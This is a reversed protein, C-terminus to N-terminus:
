ASARGTPMRLAAGNIVTHHCIPGAIYEPRESSLVFGDLPRLLTTVRWQHSTNSMEIIPFNNMM